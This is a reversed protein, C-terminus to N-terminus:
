PSPWTPGHRPRHACWWRIPARTRCWPSAAPTAAPAPEMLKNIMTALDSAIAYRVPVVDLDASSPADLSAVIKALRKLNDSYDTIVLTNNGPNANITNNPTILPRLVTVLNASNEHNLHFVQTM